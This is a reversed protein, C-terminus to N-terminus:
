LTTTSSSSPWAALTSNKSSCWHVWASARKSPNDDGHGGESAASRIWLLMLEYKATRAKSPETGGRGGRREVSALDHVEDGLDLGREGLAFGAAVARM